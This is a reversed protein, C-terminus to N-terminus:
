FEDLFIDPWFTRRNEDTFQSFSRLYKTVELSTPFHDLDLTDEYGEFTFPINKLGARSPSHGKAKLFLYIDQCVRRVEPHMDCDAYTIGIARAMLTDYTPSRSKPYLLQALLKRWDRTPLGNTNAYGLVELGQVTNQITTKEPRSVADFYIKAYYSFQIRFDNHQDAPIFVQIASISDDGQVKILITTIDFGMRDLITLLMVLNYHSDLWQTLFLGSPIGRHLRIWLSGDPMRFPLALQSEIMWNWLNQFRTPDTRTSSYDTSGAPTDKKVPLYGNEFDFMSRWDTQLDRIVSFLAHFDFGSWDVTLFTRFYLKRILLDHQLRYWGGLITVYPWLIPTKTRDVYKHYNIIPWFFMAEVFILLKAVGYILRIKPDDGTKTLQPKVHINMFYQFLLKHAPHTPTRKLTHIEIRTREFVANALNGFSRRENLIDGAEHLTRLYEAYQKESTYPEEASPPWNWPYNPLDAFHVPRVKRPPSLLKLAQARARLYHADKPIPHDPLNGRQLTSFVLDETITPMYFGNVIHDYDWGYLHKRLAFRVVKQTSEVNKINVSPIPKPEAWGIFRYNPGDLKTPWFFKSIRSAFDSLTSLM